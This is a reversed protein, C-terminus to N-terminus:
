SEIAELKTINQIVSAKAPAACGKKRLRNVCDDVSDNVINGVSSRCFPCAHVEGLPDIYFNGNGAGRCGLTPNYYEHYIIIPYERYDPSNNVRLFIEELVRKHDVALKVERGEYHGVARPELVQIFSAGLTKALSVYSEINEKSTYAKTACLSLSTVLGANKAAVMAHKVSEYSGPYNRFVDHHDAIHHDLSICVGTLGASKLQIARAETLQFGSTIIWFGARGKFQALLKLIDDFRMMPEGGSIHIQGAGYKILKEVILQLDHFSLREKLNLNNWEFCHECRLPCKTTIAFLVNRMGVPEDAPVAVRRFERLANRVFGQSPWAEGYMDWYYKGDVKAMKKIGRKGKYQIVKSKLERLTQFAKSFNKFYSVCLLLIQLKMLFTVVRLEVSSIMTSKPESM